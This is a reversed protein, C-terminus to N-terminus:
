TIRLQLEENDDEDWEENDDPEYLTRKSRGQQPRTGQYKPNHRGSINIFFNSADLDYIQLIDYYYEKILYNVVSALKRVWKKNKLIMILHKCFSGKNDKPNRIPAPITQRKGNKYGNKTSVYSFRYYFDPCTCDVKLDRENDIAQNLAKEVADFNVNGRHQKDVVKAITEIVKTFQITCIYQNVPIKVTIIDKNLFEDVDIEMTGTIKYNNSREVREPSQKLSKLILERRDKESIYHLSHNNRLVNIM